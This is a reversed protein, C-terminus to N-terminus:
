RPTSGPALEVDDGRAAVGGYSQLVVPHCGAVLVDQGQNDYAGSFRFCSSVGDVSGGVIENDHPYTWGLKDDRYAQFVFGSGHLANDSFANGVSDGRVHVPRDHVENAVVHNASSHKIYMATSGGGALLNGQVVNADADLLYLNEAHSDRIENAVIQNGDSKSGVHMGEDGSRLVTNGEFRNESTGLSLEIGYRTNDAVVNDAVLNGQGGRVRIGSGFASVQCGRVVAGVAGDLVIGYGRGSGAVSHGACELVANGKVRLGPDGCRALDATLVTSTKVTDGCRCAIAGGCEAAGGPAAAM